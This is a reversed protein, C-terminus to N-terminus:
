KRQREGFTLTKNGFFNYGANFCVVVAAAVYPANADMTTARRLIFVVVPLLVLGLAISSGYVAMCLVWERLYNGKTKFVFWKYGLFAISVSIVSSLAGAILYGYTPYRRSLLFEFVAFVGYGFLTNWVGVLVYRLFQGPPVHRLLRGIPTESAPNGDTTV